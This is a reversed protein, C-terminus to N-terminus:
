SLIPSFGTNGWDSPQASVVPGFSAPKGNADLSTILAIKIPDNGGREMVIFGDESVNPPVTLGDDFFFDLRQINNVNGSGDGTHQFINDVGRNLIPSLLIEKMSGAFGPKLNVSSSSATGEYFMVQREPPINGIPVREYDIRTAYQAPTYTLSGVEIGFILLDNESGSNFTYNRGGLSYDNSTDNANNYSAQVGTVATQAYINPSIFFVVTICAFLAIFKNTRYKM